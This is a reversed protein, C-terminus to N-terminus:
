VRKLTKAKPIVKPRTNPTKAKVKLATKAKPQLVRIKPIAKSKAHMIVLSQSNIKAKSVIKAKVAVKAKVPVKAKAKVPLKSKTIIKAKAKVAVKAKVPVKAKAKVPLKSKTIIKAKAKVPVKSKAKVPVKAKSKIIIKPPIKSKPIARDGKSKPVITRIKASIKGKPASVIKVDTPEDFNKLESGSDISVSRSSSGSADMLNSDNTNASEQNNTHGRTVVLKRNAESM